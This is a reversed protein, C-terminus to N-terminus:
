PRTDKFNSEKSDELICRKNDFDLSFRRDKYKIIVNHGYKYVDKASRLSTQIFDFDNSINKDNMIRSFEKILFAKELFRAQFGTAASIGGDTFGLQGRTKWSILGTLEENKIELGRVDTEQGEINTLIGRIGRYLYLCNLNRKNLSLLKSELDKVDSIFGDTTVSVVRGGLIEINHLCEGILARTFGTIYSSLIPNSLVGGELRVYTQSKIDFNTKGSLGM